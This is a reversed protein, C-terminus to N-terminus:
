SRCLRKHARPFPSPSIRFASNPRPFSHTRCQPEPSAPPMPKRKAKHNQQRPKCRNADPMENRNRRNARPERASKRNQRSSQERNASPMVTRNDRNADPMATRNRRNARPTHGANRNPQRMQRRRADTMATRNPLHCRNASPKANQQRPKCRNADPMATRNHRKARPERESKRNQRSSQERNASPM